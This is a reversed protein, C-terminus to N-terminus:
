QYGAFIDDPPEETSPGQTEEPLWCFKLKRLAQLREQNLGSVHVDATGGEITVALVYERCARRLSNKWRRLKSNSTKFDGNQEKYTQLMDYNNWWVDDKPKEYGAFIDDPPGETSPGNLRELLEIQHISLPKYRQPDKYKIRQYRIWKRLDAPLRKPAVNLHGHENSFEVLEKYKSNWIAQRVDFEFGVSTLRQIRTETLFSLHKTEKNLRNKYQNRQNRCFNALHPYKQQVQPPPHQPVCTHGYENQFSLLQNFHVDWRGDPAKAEEEQDLRVPPATSFLRTNAKM